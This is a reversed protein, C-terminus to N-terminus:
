ALPATAGAGTESAEEEDMNSTFFLVAENLEEPTSCTNGRSRTLQLMRSTLDIGPNDARIRDLIRLAEDFSSSSDDVSGLQRQVAGIAVWV